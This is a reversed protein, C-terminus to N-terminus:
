AQFYQNFLNLQAIITDFSRAAVTANSARNLKAVQDMLPELWKHLALHDAGKMRCERIMKAIGQQLTIGAKRYDPLSKATKGGAANIVWQLNTVNNSTSKDVKWKAGNNLVLKESAPVQQHLGRANGLFFTAFLLLIITFQKM